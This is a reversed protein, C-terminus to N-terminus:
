AAFRKRILEVIGELQGALEIWFEQGPEAEGQAARHLGAVVREDRQDNDSPTTAVEADRLGREAVNVRYWHRLQDPHFGAKEFRRQLARAGIGFRGELRDLAARAEANLEVIKDARRHRPISVKDPVPPKLSLACADSILLGTQALFMAMDSSEGVRRGVKEDLEDLARLKANLDRLPERASPTRKPIDLSSTPDEKLVGRDFLYGYFSRLVAVRNGYSSTSGRKSHLWSRLDSTVLRELPGVKALDRALMQLTREYLKRTSPALDKEHELWTLWATVWQNM